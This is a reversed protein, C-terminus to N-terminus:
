LILNLDLTIQMKICPTKKIIWFIKREVNKLINFLQLILLINNLFVAVPWTNIHLGKSTERSWNNNSIDIYQVSSEQKTHLMYQPRLPLKVAEFIPLEANLDLDLSNGYQRM